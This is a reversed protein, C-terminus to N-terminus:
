AFNKVLNSHKTFETLIWAEKMEEPSINMTNNLWGKATPNKGWTDLLGKLIPRVAQSSGFGAAGTLIANAKLFADAAVGKKNKGKKEDLIVELPMPALGAILLTGVQDYKEVINTAYTDAWQNMEKFDQSAYQLGSTMVYHLVHLTAHQSSAYFLMNYLASSAWYNKDDLSSEIRKTTGEEHENREEESPRAINKGVLDDYVKYDIVEMNNDFFFNVRHGSGNLTSVIKRYLTATDSKADPDDVDFSLLEFGNENKTLCSAMFPNTKLLYVLNVANEDNGFFKYHRPDPINEALSLSEVVLKEAVGLGQDKFGGLIEEQFLQFSEVAFQGAQHNTFDFDIKPPVQGEPLRVGRFVEKPLAAPAPKKSPTEDSAPEFSIVLRGNTPVDTNYEFGLHSDVTATLRHRDISPSKTIFADPVYFATSAEAAALAVILKVTLRLTMM